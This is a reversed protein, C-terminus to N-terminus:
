KGGPPKLALPSIIEQAPFAHALAKYKAAVDILSQFADPTLYLARGPHVESKVTSPDLGLFQVIYPAAVDEHAAVYANVDHVAKVFREVLDRHSEVWDTRAFIAATQWHVGASDFMPAGIRYKGTALASHLVPECAAGGSIRGADMAATVAPPPIEVYKVSDSPVNHQELWASMTVQFLDGIASVSLTKGEFDAPSHIPSATPVLIACAPKENRYYAVPAIMTFPLGHVHAQLIAVTGAKGMELAGGAVGAAVAAGSNFRQVDVDIGYKKFFGSKEGYVLPTTEDDLAAGIRILDSQAVANSGCLALLLLASALFRSLHLM